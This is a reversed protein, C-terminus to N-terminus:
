AIFKLKLINTFNYVHLVHVNAVVIETVNGLVKEFEIRAVNYLANKPVNRSCKGPFKRAKKRAGNRGRM